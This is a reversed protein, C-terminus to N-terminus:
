KLFGIIAPPVIKVRNLNQTPVWEFAIHNEQSNIEVGDRTEIEYVMNLEQHLEIGDKDTYSHELHGVHKISEIEDAAWGLEEQMEKYITDELRDGFEVHGGPLYYSGTEKNVCLLVQGEKKIVLRVILETTNKYKNM